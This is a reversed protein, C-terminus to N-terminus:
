HQWGGGVLVRRAEAVVTLSGTVVVIDEESATGLVERIAREVSDYWSGHVGRLSVLRTLEEVPLARASTSQTLVVRPFAPLLADLMGDVDKDSLVGFLLLRHNREPAWARIDRALARAGAPNHAAELIMTPRRHVIESRGPWSVARLGSAIADAGIALGRDRLVRVCTLVIKLNDEQYTGRLPLSVDPPFGPAEVIYHAGELTDADRRVQMTTGSRIIPAGVARCESRVVRLAARPLRGVVMTVGPTAIGAKEWAIQEVTEGLLATHDLSVTTVVTLLPRLLRTADYRGGLGVEVVAIDVAHQRFVEWAMATFAEFETPPDDTRFEPALREVIEAFTAESVWEGNAVIRDRVDINEPSTYRGVRLGSAHLISALMAVVSGKGNTGAVHIAPITEHPNNLRRLLRRVRDLGPKVEFRPLRELLARAEPYDM